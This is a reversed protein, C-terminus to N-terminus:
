NQFKSVEENFFKHITKSVYAYTIDLEHAIEYQPKGEFYLELIRQQKPPYNQFSKYLEDKMISLIAAREVNDDGPLIDSLHISETYVSKIPKELHVIMKTHNLETNVETKHKNESKIYNLIAWKIGRYAYTIFLTNRDPDYKEIAEMIAKWAVQYLEDRDGRKGYKSILSHVMGDIVPPLENIVEKDGSKYQEIIRQCVKSKNM